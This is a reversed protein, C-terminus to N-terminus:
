ISGLGLNLSSFINGISYNDYGDPNPDSSLLVGGSPSMQLNSELYNGM